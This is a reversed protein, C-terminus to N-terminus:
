TRSMVVGVLWKRGIGDIFLGISSTKEAFSNTSLAPRIRWIVLYFLVGLSM